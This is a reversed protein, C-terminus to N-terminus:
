TTETSRGHTLSRPKSLACANIRHSAGIRKSRACAFGQETM